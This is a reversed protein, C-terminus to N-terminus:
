PPRDGVREQKDSREFVCVCVCVCVYVSGRGRTYVASLFQNMESCSSIERCVRRSARLVFFFFLVCIFAHALEARAYIMRAANEKRRGGDARVCECM